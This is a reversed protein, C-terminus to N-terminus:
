EKIAKDVIREDIYHKKLVTDTAHSSLRKADGKLTSSLYTLYTKRLCKFQLERGTNLQKYFHSFGLSLSNNISKTSLTTRKDSNLLYKDKGKNIDYQLRYLINKLSKTTPIIKPPVDANFREGKKRKVKLNPVEINVPEGDKERIM